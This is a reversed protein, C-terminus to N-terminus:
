KSGALLRILSDLKSALNKASTVPTLRKQRSIITAKYGVRLDELANAVVLDSGNNKLSKYAKNVIGRRKSELKFQILLSDPAKRRILKVM